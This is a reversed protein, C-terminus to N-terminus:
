APVRQNIQAIHIGAMDVVLTSIGAPDVEVALFEDLPIRAYHLLAARIPEAHSVIVTTADTQDRGLQELHEVVRKQLARMTEGNPPRSTDRKENWRAWRPDNELEAFSRGSWDGYNIEDVAPVIEIPLRFHWALIAASQRARPQPSAQIVSPAPRILAAGRAMQRCGLESLPVGAMRGCLARGLLAHDGHRVLHITKVM